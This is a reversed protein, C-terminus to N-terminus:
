EFAGPESVIRAGQIDVVGVRVVCEIGAAAYAAGMAAGIREAAV